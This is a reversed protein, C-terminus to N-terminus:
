NNSAKGNNLKQVILNIRSSNENNNITIYDIGSAVPISCGDKTNLIMTQKEGVNYFDSPNSGEEGGGCKYALQLQISSFNKTDCIGELQSCNYTKGREYWGKSKDVDLRVLEVSYETGNGGSKLTSGAAMRLLTLRITVNYCFGQGNSQTNDVYKTFTQASVFNAILTLVILLSKKMILFKFPNTLILLKNKHKNQKNM